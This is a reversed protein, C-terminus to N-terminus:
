EHVHLNTESCEKTKMMLNKVCDCLRRMWSEHEKSAINRIYLKKYSHHIMIIHDLKADFRAEKFETNWLNWNGMVDRCRKCTVLRRCIMIVVATRKQGTTTIRLYTNKQSQQKNPHMYKQCENLTNNYIITQLVILRNRMRKGNQIEHHPSTSPEHAEFM